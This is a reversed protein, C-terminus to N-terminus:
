ANRPATTEAERGQAQKGGRGDNGRDNHDERREENREEAHKAEGEKVKLEAREVNIEVRLRSYFNMYVNAVFVLAFLSMVYGRWDDLLLKFRTLWLFFMTVYHSFCYECTFLYFFKRQLVSRCAKSRKVCFERPEKFVEEHTVTWAICAIPIALVFLWLLQALPHSSDPPNM